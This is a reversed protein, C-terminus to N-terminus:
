VQGGLLHCIATKLKMPRVPKHMLTHGLERVQQKLENSYNATIMLVAISRDRRANIAAVAEIGTREHDLHYDAILLEVRARAVNVQRALDEESLATTVRCGWQQLLSRMGECIAADNDLVWIRVGQLSQLIPMHGVLTHAQRPVRRCCPVEISFVSGKGPQSRLQVPHGLIGAIKDVIALGLGLGRDQDPRQAEGRKFEQFVEGCKDAAIGIGTDWVEISVKRGRRRCGLLIRGKPTYRIANSLLNRLIRALLQVDSRVRLRSPVYALRLGESAAVTAYEAALNDLLDSLAFSAVDARIVGADLKSIDVLTGLLNEVGDLANSVNHVLPGVGPQELLASTFLRAANLPQLLDHSVAALFKTKSLNAQEAEAKAERLNAEMRRRQDIERLLQQNLCTLEATREHVRLELHQYAQHLAEAHAYRETIDTFTNVFGGTPLPHTRIELMRGDFLRQELEHIPQGHDDRSAPTLLALESDAIVDCFHRHSAIPALGSVELFRRNWLELVGEANVMALGQSLNDVARQLLYSKHALAQERRHNERLKVRTVDTFLMVRGGDRTPRESVQLWRENRLRYLPQEDISARPEERLLSHMLRKVEVLHMGSAVRLRSNAWLAKFRRNFLVVRLDPDFLVFADSISEIADVLRQHATEARQHAESLLLHSAKLEHLAHNLADTRERVQEALVVSHQFAAFADDPRAAGSELREILAANIRRLKANDKHLQAIQEAPLLSAPGDSPLAPSPRTSTCAM